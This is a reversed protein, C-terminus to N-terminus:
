WLYLYQFESVSASTAMVPIGLSASVTEQVMMLYNSDLSVLVCLVARPTLVTKLAPTIGKANMSTQRIYFKFM